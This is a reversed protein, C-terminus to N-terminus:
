SPPPLLPVVQDKSDSKPPPPPTIPPPIPPAPIPIQPMPPPDEPQVRDPQFLLTLDYNTCDAFSEFAKANNTTLVAAPPDPPEELPLEPNAGDGEYEEVDMVGDDDEDSEFQDENELEEQDEAQVIEFMVDDDDLGAEDGELHDAFETM